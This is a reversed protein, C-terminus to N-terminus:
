PAPEAATECTLVVAISAPNDDIATVRYTVLAAPDRFVSGVTVELANLHTRLAHLRSGAATERAVAFEGQDPEIREVLIKVAEEGPLLTLSVGRASLSALFGETRAQQAATM